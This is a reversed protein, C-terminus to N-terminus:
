DDVFGIIEDGIYAYGVALGNPYQAYFDSNIDSTNIQMDPAVYSGTNYSHYTCGDKPQVTYTRYVIVSVDNDEGDPDDSGWVRLTVRIRAAVASKATTATPETPVPTSTATPIPTNTPIPTATPKPTSTLKPTATPIPTPTATPIVVSTPVPTPTVTVPTSTSASGSDNEDPNNSVPETNRTDQRTQETTDEVEDDSTIDTNKNKNNSEQGSENAQLSVSPETPISLGSPNGESLSNVTVNTEQGNATSFSIDSIANEDCSSLGIAIAYLLAVLALKIGLNIILKVLPKM